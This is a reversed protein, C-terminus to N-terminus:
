VVAAPMIDLVADISTEKERVVRNRSEATERRSGVILDECRSPAKNREALM